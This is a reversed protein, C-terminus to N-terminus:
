TKLLIIPNLPYIHMSSEVDKFNITKRNNCCSNLFVSSSTEDQPSFLTNVLVKDLILNTWKTM